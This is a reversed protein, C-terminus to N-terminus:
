CNRGWCWVGWLFALAMAWKSGLSPGYLPLLAMSGTMGQARGAFVGEGCARHCMRGGGGPGWNKLCDRGSVLM